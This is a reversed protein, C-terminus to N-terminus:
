NEFLNVFKLTRIDFLGKDGIKLEPIVLLAMFSMTMFPAKLTCGLKNIAFDSISKYKKAVEIASKNTMIGGIELSLLKNTKEYCASIGGKSKVLLNIANAIDEESKGIAIINHSDHAITSAIAGQKINFNKIIGVIPKINKKYRNLVVIKNFGNILENNKKFIQESKIKEKKTILEGDKVSIVNCFNGNIIIKIDNINIFDAKFNNPSNKDIQEYTNKLVDIGNIFVSNIKNYYKDNCIVFDAKDNVQLIGVPINYHKIPNITCSRLINFYNLKKDFAKKIILNIHGKILDDPHSDDTCLMVMNPNSDILSHLAEFNKAASGERIQIKMGLKIKDLAENLTFCEHDTTVGSNIYKELELGTLGPAHGDIPKNYKQAIKLKKHVEIDDFIVGPFNMMESLFHVKKNKFLEEIQESNLVAGSSEFTTAPVCSPAGFYIKIPANKANKLMYNIGNIGLVNTIEHPDTIVAVTGHKVVQKAFEMPSLMSSEIHVHSNVLGPLIFQQVVNETKIIKEIKDTFYIEGKYISKNVVDVINGSIKNM